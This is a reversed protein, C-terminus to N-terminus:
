ELGESVDRNSCQIFRVSTGQSALRLIPLVKALRSLGTMGLHLHVQPPAPAGSISPFLQDHDHHSHIASRGGCSYFSSSPNSVKMLAIIRQVFSLEGLLNMHRIIHDTNSSLPEEEYLFMWHQLRVSSQVSLRGRSLRAYLDTSSWPSDSIICLWARLNYVPIVQMLLM